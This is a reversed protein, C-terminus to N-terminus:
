SPLPSGPTLAKHRAPNGTAFTLVGLLCRGLRLKAVATGIVIAQTDLLRILAFAERTIVEYLM